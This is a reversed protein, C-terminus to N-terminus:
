WRTWVAGQRNPKAIANSLLHIQSKNEVTLGELEDERTIIGQVTKEVDIHNALNKSEFSPSNLKTAFAIGPVRILDYTVIHKFVRHKVGGVETWDTFSRVSYCLNMMPNKVAEMALEKRPGFPKIRGLITIAGKPINGESKRWFSEDPTVDILHNTYRDSDIDLVRILKDQDNKYGRLNPHQDESYLAGSNVSEMFPSSSEFQTTVKDYFDGESNYCGLVGLVVTYYGDKDAKLRGSKGTPTVKTSTYTVNM